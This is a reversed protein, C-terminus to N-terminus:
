SRKGRARDYNRQLNFLERSVSRVDQENRVSLKEVHILPANYTTGGNTDALNGQVAVTEEFSLRGATINGIAPPHIQIQGIGAYTEKILKAGALVSDVLSPSHRKFPNLESLWEKAKLVKARIGNVVNQLSQAISNWLSSFFYKVTAIAGGLTSTMFSAARGIISTIGNWVSGVTGKVGNWGSTFVNVISNMVSRMFNSMKSWVTHLFSQISNWVKLTVAKVTDWHLILLIIAAIILTIALIIPNASLFRFAIGVGKIAIGLGKCVGVLASFGAVIHPVFSVILLFAGGLVLLVASIAVFVTLARKTGESLGNFWNALNTLWVSLISLAPILANGVSILIGEFASSLEKLKGHLNNMQQQAIRKSTGGAKQLEATFKKIGEPKEMLALMASMAETGFITQTAAARQVDTMTKFKEKMQELIESLPRMKGKTTTLSIHYQDLIKKAAKTPSALQTVAARLATGAMSADIGVDGLRATAAAMEELSWGVSKAAPAVYKMTEGLGHLTTASSTFTKTLVDAVHTASTAKLGFGDLINAAINSAQGLEVQGASAMDLVGPMAAIIEKTKFGAMALYQMGQAAESASFVTTAGLRQAEKTLTALETKSAGSVAGVRSMGAEFDAAVKVAAGLGVGIAAGAGAVVTGVMTFDKGMKRSRNSFHDLHQRAQTMGRQFHEMRLMLNAVIAGAQALKNM